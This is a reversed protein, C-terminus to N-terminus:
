HMQPQDSCPSNLCNYKQRNIATLWAWTTSTTFFGGALAPSVPSKPEIGPNPLDGPPSFPLGPSNWHEQRSFGMSLPGQHAVAWLTVFLWVCSFHSLLCAGPLFLSYLFDSTPVRRGLQFFLCIGVSNSCSSHSPLYVKWILRQSYYLFNSFNYDSLNTLCICSHYRM